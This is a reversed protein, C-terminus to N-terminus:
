RHPDDADREYQERQEDEVDSRQDVDDPPQHERVGRVVLRRELAREAAHEVGQASPTLGSRGGSAGERSVGANAAPHVALLRVLVEHDADRPAVSSRQLQEAPAPLTRQVGEEGPLRSPAIDIVEELVGPQADDPARMAEIRPTSEGGPEELDRDV